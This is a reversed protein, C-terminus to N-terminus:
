PRRRPSRGEPSARGSEDAHPVLVGGQCAADYGLLQAYPDGMHLRPKPTEVQGHRHIGPVTYEICTLLFLREMLVRASPVARDFLRGAKGPISPLSLGLM